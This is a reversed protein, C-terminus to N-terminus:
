LYVKVDLLFRPGFHGCKMHIQSDTVLQDCIPLLVQFHLVAVFQCVCM